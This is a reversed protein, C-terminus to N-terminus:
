APLYRSSRHHWAYGGGGLILAGLVMAGAMPIPFGGGGSGGRPAKPRSTLAAELDPGTTTTTADGPVIDPTPIWDAPLAPAAVTTTTTEPPKTTTTPKKKGTNTTPKRTTTTARATTDTTEGSAAAPPQTTPTPAPPRTTTTTARPRTTTTTPPPATTTTTAPPATTTTTAPPATTTTTPPPETTTTTPPPAEAVEIVGIMQNGHILCIYGFTGANNFARQFGDTSGAPFDHHFGGDQNSSVTHNAQAAPDREWRVTDGVEIKISQEKFGSDTVTVTKTEAAQVPLAFPVAVYAATASVLALVTLRPATGRMM